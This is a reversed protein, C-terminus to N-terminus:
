TNRSNRSLPHIKTLIQRRAEPGGRIHKSQENNPETPQMKLEYTPRTPTSIIVHISVFSSSFINQKEVAQFSVDM